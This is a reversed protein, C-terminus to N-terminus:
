QYGEKTFTIVKKIGEPIPPYIGDGNTFTYDVGYKKLVNEIQVKDLKDCVKKSIPDVIVFLDDLEGIREFTSLTYDISLHSVGPNREVIHMIGDEHKIEGRGPIGKFTSLAKLVSVISVNMKEAINLAMNIADIYQTALFSSDLEVDWKGMYDISIHLPRNFEFNSIIKVKNNALTLPKNYKSWIDKESELIININNNLVDKKGEEALRTNKAIGYNEVLNTICSIDAKGSGGLSIECIIVDYNEEPLTLLYPPAISTLEGVNHVGNEFTGSGRSSKLYVKKGSTSLIHALVYCLSTKGKVGTIEIRFRKDEIFKNVAQSYWIRKEYTCGELFTDPCHCPMSVLDYHDPIPSSVTVICGQNKLDDLMEKPAIKYVDCVHVEYGEKLFYPALVQGGHTM